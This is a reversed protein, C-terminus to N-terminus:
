NQSQLRIRPVNPKYKASRYYVDAEGNKKIKNQSLIIKRNYCNFEEIEPNFVDMEKSRSIDDRSILLM